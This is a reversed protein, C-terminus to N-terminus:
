IQGPEGPCKKAAVGPDNEITPTNSSQVRSPATAAVYLAAATKETRHHCLQEIPTRANVHEACQRGDYIALSVHASRGRRAERTNQPKTSAQGNEDVVDGAGARHGYVGAPSRSDPDPPSEWFHPLQQQNDKGSLRPKNARVEGYSKAVEATDVTSEPDGCM